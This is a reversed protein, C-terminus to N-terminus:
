LATKTSPRSGGMIAFGQASGDYVGFITVM